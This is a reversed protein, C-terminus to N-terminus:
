RASRDRLIRLPRVILYLPELWSPLRLFARDRENPRLFDLSFILRRRDAADLLLVNYPIRGPPASGPSHFLNEQIHRALRVAVTDRELAALVQPPIVSGAFHRALLVGLTLPRGLGQRRAEALVRAWDLAPTAALLFAVDLIWILRSWIHKSAHMCLVLLKSEPDLDPVSAGSLLATARRPWAWDLGLVRTYRPQTLELRWRLELIIGDSPREFHYEFYNEAEPSGDQLIPTKLDYGSNLLLATAPLLSEFRILIDLDGAPRLAPDGYAVAALVVGKFPIAQINHKQFLALIRLLEATNSISQITNRTIAAQWQPAISPPISIGDLSLRHHLLPLVGHRCALQFLADWNRISDALPQLSGPIPDAPHAIAKLLNCANDDITFLTAV